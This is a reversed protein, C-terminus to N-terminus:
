IKIKYLTEIKTNSAILEDNKRKLEVHARKENQIKKRLDNNMNDIM